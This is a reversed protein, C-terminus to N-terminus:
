SEGEGRRFRQATTLEAHRRQFHSQIDKKFVSNIKFLGTMKLPERM